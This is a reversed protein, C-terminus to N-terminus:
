LWRPSSRPEFALRVILAVETQSDLLLSPEEAFAPKLIQVDDVQDVLDFGQGYVALV